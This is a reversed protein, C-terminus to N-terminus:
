EEENDSDNPDYDDESDDLDKGLSDSCDKDM